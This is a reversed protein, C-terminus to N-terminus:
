NLFVFPMEKGIWMNQAMLCQIGDLRKPGACSCSYLLSPFTLIFPFIANANKHMRRPFQPQNIMVLTILLWPQLAVNNNNYCFM